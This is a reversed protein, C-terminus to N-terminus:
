LHGVSFASPQVPLPEAVGHRDVSLLSQPLTSRGGVVRVFLGTQSVSYNGSGYYPDTFMGDAVIVPPGPVALRDADFPLAILRGDHTYLVHGAVYQPFSGGDVVLHHAHTAINLVEIRADEFSTLRATGVMFLLAKSGPLVFPFRHTKEGAAFD